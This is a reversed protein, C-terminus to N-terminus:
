SELGMLAPSEVDGASQNACPGLSFFRDGAPVPIEPDILAQILVPRPAELAHAVARSLEEGARATIGEAGYGRAIRAFHPGPRFRWTDDPVRIGQQATGTGIFAGGHNDWIVVAYRDLGLQVATHLEDPAMCFGWDGVLTLTPAGSALRVGLSALLAETMCASKEISSFVRQGPRLEIHEYAYLAASSVDLCLRVTDPLASEIARIATLPHIVGARTSPTEASPVRRAADGLWRARPKALICALSARLERLLDAVCPSVLVLEPLDAHAVNAISDSIQIVRLHRFARGLRCSFEGLPSVALVVDAEDVVRRSLASSGLSFVGISHRGDFLSKADPTTLLPAGLKRALGLIEARAPAAEPGALILPRVAALLVDAASRTTSGNPNM